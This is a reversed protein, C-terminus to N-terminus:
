FVIFAHDLDKVHSDDTFLPKHTGIDKYSYTIRPDDLSFVVSLKPENGVIMWYSPEETDVRTLLHGGGIENIVQELTLIPPKKM